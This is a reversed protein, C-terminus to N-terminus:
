DDFGYISVTSEGAALRAMIQEEAEERVAAAALVSDVLARQVVVVGDTDGVVLDGAEIVVDGVQVPRGVSGARRGDKTTSGMCLGRAFVPVGIEALRGGDRACGDIVVGGINCAKAARSLVEGWYGAEFYRGTAVVLISGPEANVLSRHIWLNDRPPTLVPLAPGWVSFSADLPKIQKPLSGIAGAAEYLTATPFKQVVDNWSQMRQGVDGDGSVFTSRLGNIIVDESAM